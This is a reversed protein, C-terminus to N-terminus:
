DNVEGDVEAEADQLAEPGQNGSKLAAHPTAQDRVQADRGLVEQGSPVETNVRVFDTQVVDKYRMAVEAAEVLAAAIRKADDGTIQPTVDQIKQIKATEPSRDALDVAARLAVGESEANDMLGKIKVLAARGLGQLVASMDVSRDQMALDLDGLVRKTADNHNSMLGFWQPNIGALKAATKKTPAAGTAYLRAALKIRPSPARVQRAALAMRGTIRRQEGIRPRGL